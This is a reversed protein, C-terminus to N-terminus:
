QTRRFEYMLLDEDRRIRGDLPVTYLEGIVGTNQNRVIDSYGTTGQRAWEGPRSPQAVELTSTSKNGMFLHKFLIQIDFIDNVIYRWNHADIM